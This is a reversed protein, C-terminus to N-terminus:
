CDEADEEDWQPDCMEGVGDLEASALGELPSLGDDRTPDLVDSEDAIGVWDDGDSAENVRAM